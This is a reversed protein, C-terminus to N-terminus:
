EVIYVGKRKPSFMEWHSTDDDWDRLLIQGITKPPEHPLSGQQALYQPSPMPLPVQANRVAPLLMLLLLLFAPIIFWMM